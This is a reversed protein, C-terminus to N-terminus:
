PIFLVGAASGDASREPAKEIGPGDIRELLDCTPLPFHFTPQSLIPLIRQCDAPM